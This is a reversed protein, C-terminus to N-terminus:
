SEIHEGHFIRIHDDAVREWSFLEAVRKQGREGCELLASVDSLAIELVRKLDNTDSKKFYAAADGMAYLNQEIDSCIIPAGLFAAELIVPSLGEIDSPQIYAYANKMLAHTSAGYVFGPFVIRPDKTERITREYGSPNPSGGVLVLLKATHVREFADVLYHLGKDPIFRGVFLFYEGSVLGLKELIVESSPDYAVDSGFPIFKYSRRFKKEFLDKAFVNDFIVDNHIHATLYSSLRLFLKAYWPWKAREWDVGDQSLFTKKGFLRLFVAFISNGGNQIHVVDARNHVIIDWTARGSHILTDFGKWKVTRRPIVKVGLYTHSAGAEGEYVRTYGVVEHGRAALRPLLELAFKDAGAAGATPPFSRFGFAAIRLPASM